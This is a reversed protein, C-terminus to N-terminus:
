QFNPQVSSYGPLLCYQYTRMYSKVLLYLPTSVISVSVYTMTFEEYQHVLLLVFTHAFAKLVSILVNPVTALWIESIQLMNNFSTAITKKIEKHQTVRVQQM